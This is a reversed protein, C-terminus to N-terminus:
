NQLFNMLNNKMIEPSDEPRPLGDVTGPKILVHVFCPGTLNIKNKIVNKFEEKTKVKLINKYGCACAIKCFDINESATKQGGTSEYVKNDFCIHILNEPSFHGITTLAGLKMILAGDGDIVFVRRDKFKESLALGISPACGMSGMMYFKGPYNFTSYLERGSFGTTGIFIDKDKANSNLIDLYSIRLELNSENNETKVNEKDFYGKRVIFVYPLSSEQVYNMAKKVSKIYEENKDTIIEYPINFIELYKKLTKGMYLHQPADKQGPEARWSILLLCPLKYLLQLSSLPNIANGYGDNQMLIVPIDGALAFGGALGMAEGESSTLYYKSDNCDELYNILYKFISCPVGMFPSFGANTLTKVFFETKM